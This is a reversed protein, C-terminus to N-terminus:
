KEQIKTPKVQYCVLNQEEATEAASVFMMWNCENEDTTDLYYQAFDESDDVFIKIPFTISPSLNLARKAIFPGFRTGKLILRKTTVATTGDAMKEVELSDPLSLLAKSPM